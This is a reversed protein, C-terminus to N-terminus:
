AAFVQNRGKKKATYLAEDAAKLLRSPNMGDKKSSAMGVSLTCRWKVNSMPNGDKDMVPGHLREGGRRIMEAIGLTEADSGRIAVVFEEGGLRGVHVKGPAEFQKLMAAIRKIVDDGTPHGHTDNIRKFHDIDVMLVGCNEGLKGCERLLADWKRFFARRRWLGTLDDLDAASETRRLAQLVQFYSSELAAVEGHLHSLLAKIEKLSEELQEPNKVNM